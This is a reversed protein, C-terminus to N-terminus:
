FINEVYPLQANKMDDFLVSCQLCVSPINEYDNKQLYFLILNIQKNVEDIHGHALWVSLKKQCDTWQVSLRDALQANKEYERETEAIEALTLSIADISKDITYNGYLGLFVALLLLAVAIWLRKM